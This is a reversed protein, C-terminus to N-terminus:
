RRKMRRHSRASYSVPSGRPDVVTYGALSRTHIRTLHKGSNPDYVLAKGAGSYEVIFMVHGRRAAVMGAAPSTRPFKLWNAALYLERIPKGFVKVSVGCGCFLRAPCGPPHPLIAVSDERHTKGPRGSYRGVRVPNPAQPAEWAQFARGDNTLILVPSSKPHHIRRGEASQASFAVACLFAIVANLRTM